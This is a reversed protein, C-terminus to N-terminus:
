NTTAAMAAYKASMLISSNMCFLSMVVSKDVTHITKIIFIKLKRSLKSPAEAPIAAITEVIKNIAAAILPCTKTPAKARTKMPANNPKRM